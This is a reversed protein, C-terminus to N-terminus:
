QLLRGTSCAVLAGLGSTLGGIGTIAFLAMCSPLGLSLFELLPPSIRVLVGRVDITSAILVFVGLVAGVILGVLLGLLVRQPARLSQAAADRPPLAARYGAILPVALLMVAGLTIVGTVVNRDKFAEVLGVM